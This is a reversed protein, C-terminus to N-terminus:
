RVTPPLRYGFYFSQPYPNVHKRYSSLSNGHEDGVDVPGAADVRGVLDGKVANLQCVVFRNKVEDEGVRAHLRTRGVETGEHPVTLVVVGGLDTEVLILLFM